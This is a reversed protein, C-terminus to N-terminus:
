PLPTTSFSFFTGFARAGEALFMTTVRSSRLIPLGTRLAHRLRLPKVRSTDHSSDAAYPVCGRVFPVRQKAPPCRHRNGSVRLAQKLHRLPQM